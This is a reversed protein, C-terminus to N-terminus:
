WGVCLAKGSPTTPTPPLFQLGCIGASLRFKFGVFLAGGLEALAMSLQRRRGTTAAAASCVSRDSREERRQGTQAEM